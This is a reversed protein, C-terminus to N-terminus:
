STLSVPWAWCSARAIAQSRHGTSRAAIARGAEDARHDALRPLQGDVGWDSIRISSVRDKMLPFDDFWTRNGLSVRRTPGTEPTSSSGREPIREESTVRDFAELKDVGASSLYYRLFETSPPPGTTTPPAGSPGTAASYGLEFELVMAHTFASRHIVVLDPNQEVIQGRTGRRAWPRRTSRLRCVGWLMASTTPTPEATKGPERITSAERRPRTGDPGGRPNCERTSWRPPRRHRPRLACRRRRPTGDGRLCDLTRRHEEGLPASDAARAGGQIAPAATLTEEIELRAVSASDLRWKRDKELCRRLLRKIGAPTSTPLTAWPPEARLVAALADSVTSARLSVRAPSCRGCCSVSRGCTRASTSKSAM